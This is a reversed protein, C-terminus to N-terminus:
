EGGSLTPQPEARQVPVMSLVLRRTVNKVWRWHIAFHIAATAILVVGSWTHVMDWVVRAPTLGAGEGGAVLLLAFGSVACMLFSLAVGADLLLNYWARQSMSSEGSRLATVVRRAMMSVWRWHIAFHAVVAVVMVVGAYIHLDSWTHREFLITIGYMPNRGGRYGGSPLYLFYIGSLAALVGGLFVMADILWNARTQNSLSRARTRVGSKTQM